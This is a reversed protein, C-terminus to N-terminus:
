APGQLPPPRGDCTWEHERPSRTPSSALEAAKADAYLALYDAGLYDPLFEGQALYRDGRAM